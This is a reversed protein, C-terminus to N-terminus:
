GDKEQQVSPGLLAYYRQRCRECLPLRPMAQGFVRAGCARCPWSPPMFTDLRQQMEQQRAHRRLWCYLHVIFALWILSLILALM